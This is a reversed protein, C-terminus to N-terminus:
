ESQPNVLHGLHSQIYKFIDPIELYNGCTPIRSFILELITKQTLQKAKLWSAFQKLLQNNRDRAQECAQEYEQYSDSM